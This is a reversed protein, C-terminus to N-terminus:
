LYNCILVALALKLLIKPALLTAKARVIKSAELQKGMYYFHALIHDEACFRYGLIHLLIEASINTFCFLIQQVM